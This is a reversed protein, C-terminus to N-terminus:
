RATSTTATPVTMEISRLRRRLTSLAPDAQVVDRLFAARQSAPLRGLAERVLTVAQDQYTNALTVADQGKRRVDGAAAMAAKAHIRAVNYLRRPTPEAM